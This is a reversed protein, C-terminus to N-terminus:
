GRVTLKATQPAGSVHREIVRRAKRLITSTPQSDLERIPMWQCEGSPELTHTEAEAVEFLYKHFTITHRFAGFKRGATATPLQAREPLEWFGPMLRSTSLRQWVLVKGEHEIWFLLRQEQASPQRKSKVPLDNERGRHRAQCLESVPCILCQPNKPLCITAGLEMMAQNFEGPRDRDLLTDAVASFHKRAAASAINTPDDLLRSLVRFVNGDLVAHPLNFSISAVAAATYDGIGPLGRLDEITAPFGGADRMLRAAKHLNRARYYYGLGAWHALLDAESADALNQFDPFRAVFREYYSIATAVRTQQLMIESVWIAYPDSTRRWPLDRRHRGFWVLLQTRFREIEDSGFMAKKSADCCLFAM